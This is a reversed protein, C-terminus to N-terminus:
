GLRLDTRASRSCGVAARRENEDIESARGKRGGSRGVEEEETWRGGGGGGKSDPKKEPPYKNWSIVQRYPEGGGGLARHVRAEM